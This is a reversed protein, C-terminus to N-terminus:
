GHLVLCVYKTGGLIIVWDYNSRDVTITLSLVALFVISDVCM